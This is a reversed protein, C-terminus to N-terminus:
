YTYVSDTKERNDCDIELAIVAGENIKHVEQTNCRWTGGKITLKLESIVDDSDGAKQAFYTYSNYGRVM